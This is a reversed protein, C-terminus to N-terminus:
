LQNITLKEIDLNACFFLGFGENTRQSIKSNYLKEVIDSAIGKVIEFYYVCGAPVAKKMEKPERKKIDFGGVPISKGTFAALLKIEGINELLNNIEIQPNEADKLLAPTIFYLKFFKGTISPIKLNSQKEFSEIESIKNEAGLRLSVPTYEKQFEYEVVFTVKNEQKKSTEPRLMGVRYLKGEESSRTANNLGVGIKPETKVWKSLNNTKIVETNGQLYKNITLETVICNSMAEVHESFYPLKDLKYNSALGYEKINLLQLHDLEYENKNDERQAIKPHKKKRNVYDLPLPYYSNNNTQIFFRTIKMDKTPDDAKGMKNMEDPHQAFYASRLAGYIVSPNPPFMGEAWSDNGMDFPRGDRFFLTDLAKIEITPM